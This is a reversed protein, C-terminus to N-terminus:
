KWRSRQCTWLGCWLGSTTKVGFDISRSFAAADFVSSNVVPPKRGTM